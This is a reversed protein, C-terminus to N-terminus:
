KTLSLIPFRWGISQDASPAWHRCRRHALVAGVKPIREAVPKCREALALAREMHQQDIGTMAKDEGM